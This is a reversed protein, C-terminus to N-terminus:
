KVNVWKMITQIVNNHDGSMAENQFETIEDKGVGHRRLAMSTRGIMVFANGDQGVLEVSVNYKPEMKVTEENM